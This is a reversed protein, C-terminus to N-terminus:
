RFVNCNGVEGFSLPVRCIRKYKKLKILSIPSYESSNKISFEFTNKFCNDNPDENSNKVFNRFMVQLVNCNNFEDYRVFTKVSICVKM